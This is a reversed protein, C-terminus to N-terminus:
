EAVACDDLEYGADRWARAAAPHYKLPNKGCMGLMPFNFNASNGYPAKAILDDVTAAYASVLEYVLDSDMDKHVVNGGITAFARFTDDESVFTWDDGMTAQLDALPMTFPASGPAVMYKQMAESEYAAKPMSWGTMKGAATVTTLRSGPFLEPLVVADPEGSSVLASGQGWNTQMGEYGEGDKLGTIIQIMSRANTLAGGRPPGNYIKRGKIDDWGNIGKADYAYLFFIGLTFPNIARLNGALEAGKEKGLSGYPGVGRSMLFPLIYPTGAIDTKGEAVNQISNTLTQGDALQINAIGKTGAVEAMHAPSLHTAGGPSATEATLNAQAFAGTALTTAAALAAILKMPKM